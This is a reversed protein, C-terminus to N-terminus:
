ANTEPRLAEIWSLVNIPDLRKEGPIAHKIRSEKEKQKKKRLNHNM